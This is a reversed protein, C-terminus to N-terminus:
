PKQRSSSSKTFHRNKKLINKKKSKLWDLYEDEELVVVVMKMQYHQGGCIKNCLLAYDFDNDKKLGRMEKTSIEPTYKLHVTMGPVANMQARFHPFYASHIVDKSRVSFDVETGKPLYLTDKQIFDDFAQSDFKRDHKDLMNALLKLHREKRSIDEKNDDIKYQVGEAILDFEKVKLERLDDEMLLISNFISHTTLLGLENQTCTTKYDFKALENDDGAYHAIWEFQQGFLEIKISGDIGKVSHNRGHESIANGDSDSHDDLSSSECSCLIILIPIFYKINM